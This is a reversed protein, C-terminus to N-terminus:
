ILLCVPLSASLYDPLCTKLYTSLCISKHSHPRTPPYTYLYTSLCVPLSLYSPLRIPKNSPPHTPPCANLYTSLSVFLSVVCSYLSECSGLRLERADRRFVYLYSLFRCILIRKNAFLCILSNVNGPRGVHKGAVFSADRGLHPIVTGVAM